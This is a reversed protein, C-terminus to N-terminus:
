VTHLWAHLKSENEIRLLATDAAAPLATLVTQKLVGQRFYHLTLRHGPRVNQWIAAFDTCAYGDAAIVTDGPSLGATEASSGNAIHSLTIGNGTQTYRAGFDTAPQPEPWQSCLGGGHSRPLAHWQLAIGAASLCNELPLDDTSYLATQFFATLDLGTIEQCRRQWAREEIGKGDALYDRYLTRMVDDLSQRGGSRERIFLDLCLAALAGKQYYSVIANPSNEDQKYYKHWAAFSSEALTQQLRGGGQQVRTLNKALLNLYDTQSIVGSRVLMLDDYYSTIGEFAWLQETHSEEDLRYPMFAAPKISKVNWAHFYEHAILGLLQIYADDPANLGIRPLSLRDAHLATSDLHELGGYIHDGLYLLFLYHKFPAPSDFMKLEAECIKQVDFRLRERDFDPYDGSLAIRHPIGCATFDLYEIHGMEVPHDIIEAYSAAQFVTRLPQETGFSPVNGGNEAPAPLTTAIQWHDPLGSFELRHPGHERGEASLLLCAGDFFGREQNLFSARVSLDHAYVTYDIQWEGAAAESQWRNKATQLLEAPRGNCQAGIRIIHRSFDRIMYSGPVWNALSLKLPVNETQNLTLRIHWTHSHPHPTLIYHMM